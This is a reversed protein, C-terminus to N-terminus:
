EMGVLLERVRESMYCVWFWVDDLVYMYQVNTFVIYFMFNLLFNMISPSFFLRSFDHYTSFRNHSHSVLSSILSSFPFNISKSLIKRKIKKEIKNETQDHEKKRWTHFNLWPFNNSCPPCHLCKSTIHTKPLM